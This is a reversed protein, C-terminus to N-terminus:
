RTSFNFFIALWINDSLYDHMKKIKKKNNFNNDGNSCEGIYHFIGKHRHFFPCDAIDGVSSEMKIKDKRKAQNKQEMCELM